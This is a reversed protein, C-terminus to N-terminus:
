SLLFGRGHCPTETWFIEPRHRLTKGPTCGGPTRGGWLMRRHRGVHENFRNELVEHQRNLRQHEITHDRVFNQFDRSLTALTDNTADWNRIIKFLFGLITFVGILLTVFREGSTFM